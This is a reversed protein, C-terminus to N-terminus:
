VEKMNELPTLCHPSFVEVKVGEELLAAGLTLGGVMCLGFRGMSVPVGLIPEDPASISLIGSWGKAALKSLVQLTKDRAEAIIERLAVPLAGTGTKLVKTVSTLGSRILLELPPITTGEYSILEIFRLPRKNVIQVLGGYKFFVPIGSRILIGDITLDCVTLLAIRGNSVYIGQYEEGENVIRVYPATLLGAEKLRRMIELAKDGFNKDMILVNAVVKGTNSDPEYTVSYAMSLFRTAVFGVRQSVLASSLVDLGKETIVKGGKEHRMVLGKLELSKLHYRITRDSLFLGRKELERRILPSSLPDPSESLVRLIGIERSSVEYSEAM